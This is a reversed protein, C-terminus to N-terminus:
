HLGKCENCEKTKSHADGARWGEFVPHSLKEKIEEEESLILREKLWVRIKYTVKDLYKSCIAM